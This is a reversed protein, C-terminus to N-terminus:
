QSRIARESNRDGSGIIMTLKEGIERMRMTPRVPLEAPHYTVSISTQSHLLRQQTIDKFTHAVIKTEGVEEHIILGDLLLGIAQTPEMAGHTRKGRTKTHIMGAKRKLKNGHTANHVIIHMGIMTTGIGNNNATLDVQMEDHNIDIHGKWTKGLGQPKCKGNTGNM